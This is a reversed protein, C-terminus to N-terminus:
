RRAEGPDKTGLRGMGTDLKVHVRSPHAPDTPIAALFRRDWVVVDADAAVAIRTDAATLAGMVLVRGEIGDARLGAAEGATAVALWSAGGEQAARACETAGHGYGDAKVVACLQAGDALLLRLHECNHRVAGESLANKQPALPRLFVDLTRHRAGCSSSM